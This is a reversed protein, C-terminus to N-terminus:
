ETEEVDAGETNEGEVQSVIYFTGSATQTKNQKVIRGTDVLSQLARSIETHKSKRAKEEEENASKGNPYWHKLLMGNKWEQEVNATMLTFVEEIFAVREENVQQRNQKRQARAILAHLDEITIGMGKLQKVSTRNTIDAM